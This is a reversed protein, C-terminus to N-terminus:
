ASQRRHRPRLTRCYHWYFVCFGVFFVFAINLSVGMVKLKGLALGCAIIMSLVVVTQLASHVSFLGNIWDM